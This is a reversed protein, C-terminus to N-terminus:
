SADLAAALLQNTIKPDAKGGTAKMVEGMFMGQLGKKGAKYEAVKEPYKALISEILGKLEDANSEIVLNKEQAIQLPSQTPSELMAPYVQKSAINHNIKGSDILNIMEALHKAPVPFQAMSLMLENLYSKVNVTVWNAASKYNQTNQCVEEFYLAIDKEATLVEADYESLGYEQTFKLYLARPLPPMAAEVRAIWEPSVIVPTLDPEPFYRYDNMSEKSRLSRTKGEAADFTRTEQIFTWGQLRYFLQREFEFEIARRVNNFSNLNKVEVRTGFAEGKKRISVNVDCRLSGEEMNGDCIDLYRVLKRIENLYYYAEDSNRMDPESVIEVLPVGARNLDIFSEEEGEIHMSKGADEELHIRTIGISKEEAYGKPKVFIQGGTCIPTKDQTIQYGKPLDPYFYNKRAFINERTISSGCAIGMRIAYDFAKKNAKPLTGPHALTIVSVNTNPMNGYTCEEWSYAKSATSLQAHVELGIVTEYDHRHAALFAEVAQWNLKPLAQEFAQASHFNALDSM